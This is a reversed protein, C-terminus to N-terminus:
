GQCKLFNTGGRRGGGGGGEAGFILATNKLDAEKVLTYAQRPVRTSAHEIELLEIYQSDVDSLRTTTNSPQVSGTLIVPQPTGSSTTPFFPLQGHAKEGKESGARWSESTGYSFRGTSLPWRSGGKKGISKVTLRGESRTHAKWQLSWGACDGCYPSAPVWRESHWGAEVWARAGEPSLKDCGRQVPCSHPSPSVPDHWM